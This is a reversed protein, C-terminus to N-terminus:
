KRGKIISVISLAILYFMVIFGWGLATDPDTYEFSVMCIWGLLSIGLGIIGLVRLTKM